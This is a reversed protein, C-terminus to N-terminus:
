VIMPTTQFPKHAEHNCLYLEGGNHATHEEATGDMKCPFPLITHYQEMKLEMDFDGGEMDRAWHNTRLCELM